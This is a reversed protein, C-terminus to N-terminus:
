NNMMETENKRGAPPSSIIHMYKTEHVIVVVPTPIGHIYIDLRVKVMTKFGGVKVTM